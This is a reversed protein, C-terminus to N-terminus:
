ALGTSRTAHLIHRMATGGIRTFRTNLLSKGTKCAAQGAVVDIGTEEKVERAAAIALPEDVADISGTVSQWFGMKDARELILVDLQPTYIVVLVSIPIKHDM